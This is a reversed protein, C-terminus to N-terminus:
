TTRIRKKIVRIYDNECINLVIAGDGFERFIRLLRKGMKKGSYPNILYICNEKKLKILHKYKNFIFVDLKDPLYVFVFYFPFLLLKIINKFTVNM